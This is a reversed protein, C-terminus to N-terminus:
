VDRRTVFSFRIVALRLGGGRGLRRPKENTKVHVGSATFVIINM